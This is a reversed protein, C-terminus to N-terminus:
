YNNCVEEVSVMARTSMEMLNMDMMVRALTAVLLTLVCSTVVQRM